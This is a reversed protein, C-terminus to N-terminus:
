ITVPDYLKTLELVYHVQTVKKGRFPLLSNTSSTSSTGLTCPSARVRRGTEFPFSALAGVKAEKEALKAFAKEAKVTEKHAEMEKKKASLQKQKKEEKLAKAAEANAVATTLKDLCKNEKVGPIDELSGYVGVANTIQAPTICSLHRFFPGVHRGTGVVALRLEDVARTRAPLSLHCGHLYNLLAVFSPPNSTM